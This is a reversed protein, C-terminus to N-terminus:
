SLLKFQEPAIQCDHEFDTAFKPQCVLRFYQLSM